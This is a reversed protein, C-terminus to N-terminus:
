GNDTERNLVHLGAGTASRLAFRLFRGARLAASVGLFSLDTM